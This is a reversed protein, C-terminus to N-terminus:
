LYLAALVILTGVLTGLAVAMLCGRIANSAAPM